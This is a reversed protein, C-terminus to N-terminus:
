MVRSKSEFLKPTDLDESTHDPKCLLSKYSNYLARSPVFM